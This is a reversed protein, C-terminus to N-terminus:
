EKVEKKKFFKRFTWVWNCTECATKYSMGTAIFCLPKITAVTKMVILCIFLNLATIFVTDLFTNVSFGYTFMISLLINHMLYVSLSLPVIPIHKLVRSPKNANQKFFIFIIAALLVEFGASQTQFSQNFSGAIKTVIYTGITIVGLVVAAASVLLGNPIKKKINGLYWGLVFSSAHGSFFTMKNIIDLELYRDFSAPTVAKLMYKISVLSILVLVLIHGKKTLAHLAAHIIPSLIYLAILTYMYWFHVKAPSSLSSVLKNYLFEFSYNKTNFMDWLAAVVTWGILPVLLHPIRKKFLLSVDTTKESSLLLYGSMMFFLPVATFSFCVLLNEMHWDINIVRRLPGSAVHMYIVCIAAIVRLYDFYYVHNRKGSIAGQNSM